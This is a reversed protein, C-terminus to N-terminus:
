DSGGASLTFEDLIDAMNENGSLRRSLARIGADALKEATAFPREPDGVSLIELVDRIVTGTEITGLASYKTTYGSPPADEPGLRAAIAYAIAFRYADQQSGAFYTEAVAKLAEDAEATLGIQTKDDQTRAM